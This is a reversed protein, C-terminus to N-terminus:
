EIFGRGLFQEPEAASAIERRDLLQQVVRAVL